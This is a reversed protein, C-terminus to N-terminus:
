ADLVDHIRDRVNGAGRKVGACGLARDAEYLIRQLAIIVDARDRYASRAHSLHVGCELEAIRAEADKAWADKVEPPMTTRYPELGM